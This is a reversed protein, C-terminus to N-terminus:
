KGVLKELVEKANINDPNLELSKKYNEIALEKQGDTMYGEGLSDYVNWSGPYMEVNMKFIEIAEKVKNQGMLQYGIQNFEAEDFYFKNDPTSKIAQYKEVAAKIGSDLMVQRLVQATSQTDNINYWVFHLNNQHNQKLLDADLGSKTLYSFKNDFSFRDQVAVFDLGETKASNLNQWIDVLYDRWLSLFEVPMRGNHTDFVFEVDEKNELVKNLVDIWRPADFQPSFAIQFSGKYFLDGTFLLKEEPCHIIVDDGTHLGEGFYFLKLTLDGLSLTMRDNFTLNPPTLVFNNELDEIMIRNNAILDRFRQAQDSAPDASQLQNELQILRTKRMAVFNQRGEEFQRMRATTSKHGIIKADKFVQNGSTHDFHFHTNIVYIFDNRGFGQEIIKRYEATRSPAIGTDIMILGKSSALCIVQDFYIKGSHVILVRDSYRETYIDNSWLQSISILLFLLSILLFIKPHKM